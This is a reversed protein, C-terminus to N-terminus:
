NTRSCQVQIDNNLRGRAGDVFDARAKELRIRSGRGPTESKNILDTRSAVARCKTCRQRGSLNRDHVHTELEM